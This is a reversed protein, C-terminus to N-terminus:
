GLIEDLRSVALNMNLTKMDSQFIAPQKSVERSRPILRDKRYQYVWLVIVSKQMRNENKIDVILCNEMM